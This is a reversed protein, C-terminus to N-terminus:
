SELSNLVDAMGSTVATAGQIFLQENKIKKGALLESQQIIQAVFPTAAKLKDGGTQASPDNIAGIMGEATVIVQGVQALESVVKSEVTSAGAPLNPALVPWIGSAIGIVKLIITGAKKLWTM